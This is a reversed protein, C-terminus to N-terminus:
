KCQSPKPPTGLPGGGMVGPLYIAEAAAKIGHKSGEQTLEAADVRNKTIKESDFPNGELAKIHQNLFEQDKISAKEFKEQGKKAELVITTVGIALSVIAIITLPNLIEGKPDINNVPNNQVYAYLNIGGVEGLPDRTLWKGTVPSYFRYGFYDPLYYLDLLLFKLDKLL